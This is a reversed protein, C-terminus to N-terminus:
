RRRKRKAALSLVNGEGPNAISEILVALRQLADRKEDRYSHRDYIGEVGAIAHGLVREAIDPRVGARAMLSRASRRLDHITWPAVNKLKADFREKGQSFGRFPLNGCSSAFVYPNDGLHPQARIIQVAIDPLVLSGATGKERVEAPIVWEGDISIDQWRMNAVKRSRQGCLLCMRVISGFTGNAKAQKWIELIESDDLIRARAQTGSSQRQMGRVIPPTYDDCRVAYWNMISRAVSLVHDAARQGHNDEVHDLLKAVDSRRISVFERNRWAPLIHKDLLRIIEKRTRLANPEVHRKIWNGAVDGFTEAKAEVAPLGDRVRSLIDRAKIRATDIGMADAAGITTWIQKGTPSSTVAVFSKTGSAQVRIYHGRLEPDPFAYRAARPKLAAVGRDTLSRRSM